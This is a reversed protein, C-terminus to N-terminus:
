IYLRKPIGHWQGKTYLALVGCRLSTSPPSYSLAAEVVRLFWVCCLVMPCRVSCFRKSCCRARASSEAYSGLFHLELKISPIILKFWFLNAVLEVPTGFYLLISGNVALCGSWSGGKPSHPQASPGLGCGETVLLAQLEWPPQRTRDPILGVSAGPSSCGAGPVTVKTNPSCNPAWLYASQGTVVHCTLAWSAM